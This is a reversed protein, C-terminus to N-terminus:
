STDTSLALADPWGVQQRSIEQLQGQHSGKFYKVGAEGAEPLRSLQRASPLGPREFCMVDQRYGREPQRTGNRSMLNRCQRRLPPLVARTHKHAQTLSTADSRPSWVSTGDPLLM